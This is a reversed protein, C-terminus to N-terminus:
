CVTFCIKKLGVEKMKEEDPRAFEPDDDATIQKEVLDTFRSHIVKNKSQGHRLLNDFKIRGEADMQVPLANSREKKERGMGLPFQAVMIDPFAGGDGFDQRLFYHLMYCICLIFCFALTIKLSSHCFSNLWVSDFM